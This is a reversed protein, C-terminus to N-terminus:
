CLVDVHCNGLNNFSVLMSMSIEIDLCVVSRKITLQHLNWFSCAVTLTKTARGEFGTRKVKMFSQCWLDNFENTYIKLQQRIKVLFIPSQFSNGYYFSFLWIIEKTRCFWVLYEGWQRMIEHGGECPKNEWATFSNLILAFDSHFNRAVRWFRHGAKIIYYSRM